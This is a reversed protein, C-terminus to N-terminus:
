RLLQEWPVPGWISNVTRIADTIKNRDSPTLEVIDPHAKAWQDATRVDTSLGYKKRMRILERLALDLRKHTSRTKAM